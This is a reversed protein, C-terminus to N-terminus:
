VMRRWSARPSPFPRRAECMDEDTLPEDDRESQRRAVARATTIDLEDGLMEIRGSAAFVRLVHYRAPRGSATAPVILTWEVLGRDPDLKAEYAEKIKSFEPIQKEM